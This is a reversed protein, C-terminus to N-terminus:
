VDSLITRNQFGFLFLELPILLIFHRTRLESSNDLQSQKRAVSLKEAYLYSFTLHSQREHSQTVARHLHKVLDLPAHNILACSAQKHSKRSVKQLSSFAKTKNGLDVSFLFMLATVKAKLDRFWCIWFSHPSTPVLAPLAALCCYKGKKKRVPQLLREGAGVVDLWVKFAECGARWCFIQKRVTVFRVFVSVAM